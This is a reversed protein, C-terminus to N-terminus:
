GDLRAAWEAPAFGVLLGGDHEVVPRKIMSPQALMLAVARDADLDAKDAPDLKRFTTGSRNLLKEWGAEAVWRELRPRDIGASKYDHFAHDIGRGDLWSRAKKVTDCNKIGYM